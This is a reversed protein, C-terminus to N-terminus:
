EGPQNDSIRHQDVRNEHTIEDDGSYLSFVSFAPQVAM